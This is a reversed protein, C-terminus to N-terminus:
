ITHERIASHARWLRPTDVALATGTIARIFIKRLRAIDAARHLAVTRLYMLKLLMVRSGIIIRIIIITIIVQLPTGNDNDQRRARLTTNFQAPYRDFRGRPSGM